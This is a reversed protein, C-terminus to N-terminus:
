NDPFALKLAVYYVNINRVYGVTEQGVVRLAAVECHGFWQNPDFGMKAARRRISRVKGPGANYAALAFRLRDDPSIAPDTFYRDRLLALYKVGAHINNEPLHLKKVNIRADQELEPLVQMLGIAGARSKLSHDFGSEHFAQAAILMWDIGYERGYERFWREYQILKKRTNKGVPNKILRTKEFYRTFYINGKLTGKKHRKIFRNLSAKLKPNNKRVMWALRGGRRVAIHEHVRIDTLISSWLAALHSDVVTIKAIGANVMELIDEDSVNEEVPVVNVPRLGAAQLKANIGVLSSYYSSSKGVYVSRGSLDKYTRLGTVEKHAVVVEDVGTLYPNTFDAEALRQPTITLGAAAIDCYGKLLAPILQSRTMPIFSLTMPLSRRKRGKNLFDEYDKLLSYEFGHNKGDPLFFFNTMSYTTGVFIAASKKMEPLDGTFPVRWESSMPIKKDVPSAAARVPLMLTLIMFSASALVSICNRKSM